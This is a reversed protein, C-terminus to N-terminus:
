SCLLRTSSSSDDLAKLQIKNDLPDLVRDFVLRDYYGIFIIIKNIFNYYLM